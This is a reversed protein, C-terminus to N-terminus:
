RTYPEAVLFQGEQYYGSQSEPDTLRMDYGYTGAPIAATEASPIKWVVVGDEAYIEVSASAVLAGNQTQRVHMAASIGTLDVPQGNSMILAWRRYFVEGRKIAYDRIKM